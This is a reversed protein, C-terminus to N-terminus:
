KKVINLAKYFGKHLSFKYDYNIKQTTKKHKFIAQRKTIKRKLYSDYVKMETVQGVYGNEFLTLILKKCYSDDKIGLFSEVVEKFESYSFDGGGNKQMIEPICNITSDEFFGALENKMEELFYETSYDVLVTDLESFSLRTKNPFTKQCQTLFQLIDRPKNLTFELVYLWSDKNKIRSPFLENWHGNIKHEPIGSIKFRLNVLNKLEDNRNNWNLVIGGDRRIKNFDPDTISSLIDERALLIIKIPIEYNSLKLNIENISRILGALISLNDQTYRLIDDLGDIIIRIKNNNYYMKSLVDILNEILETNAYNNKKCEYQSSFKLMKLNLDFSRKSLSIVTANINKGHLLGNVELFEIVRNFDEIEQFNFNKNLMRFIQIILTLDWVSKFKQTGKLTDNGMNYFLDFEFNSLSIQEAYLNSDSQALNRIKASFATKGVGKRGILMFEHGDILKDVIEKPDYFAEEFIKPSRTYETEADSYGFIYEDFNLSKNKANNM